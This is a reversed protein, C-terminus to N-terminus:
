LGITWHGKQQGEKKCRLMFFYFKSANSLFFRDQSQILLNCASEPRTRERSGGVWQSGFQEGHVM